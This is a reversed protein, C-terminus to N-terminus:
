VVVEVAAQDHVAHVAHPDLAVRAVPCLPVAEHRLVTHLLVVPDDAVQTDQHVGLVKAARLAVVHAEHARVAGVVAGIGKPDGVWVVDEITVDADGVAAGEEDLRPVHHAQHPALEARLRHLHPVVALDLPAHGQGLEGVVEGVGAPRAQAVVRPHAEGGAAAVGVLPERRPPAAAPHARVRPAAPHCDPLGMQHLVGHRDRRAVRRVADRDVLAPQDRAGAPLHPVLAGPVGAGREDHVPHPLGLSRLEAADERHVSERPLPHAAVPAVVRVGQGEPPVPKGQEPVRGSRFRTGCFGPLLRRHSERRTVALSPAPQPSSSIQKRVRTHQKQKRKTGMRGQSFPWWPARRPM